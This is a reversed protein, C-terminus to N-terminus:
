KPFLLENIVQYAWAEAVETHMDLLVKPNGVEEPQLGYYLVLLRPRESSSGSQRDLFIQLEEMPWPKTVYAPTLIIIAVQAKSAVAQLHLSSSSLLSCEIVHTCQLSADIMLPSHPNPIIQQSLSTLLLKAHM